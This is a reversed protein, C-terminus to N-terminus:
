PVVTIDLGTEATSSRLPIETTRKCRDESKEDVKKRTCLYTIISGFGAGMLLTGGALALVESEKDTNASDKWIGYLWDLAIKLLEGSNM